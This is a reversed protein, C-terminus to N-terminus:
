LTPVLPLKPQCNSAVVQVFPLWVNVILTISEVPLSLMTALLDIVTLIAIGVTDKLVGVSLWVTEPGNSILADPETAEPLM